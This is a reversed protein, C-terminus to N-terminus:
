CTHRYHALGDAHRCSKTTFFRLMMARQSQQLPLALCIRLMPTQYQGISCRIFPDPIFPDTPIKKLWNRERGDRRAM